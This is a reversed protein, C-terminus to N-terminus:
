HERRKTSAFREVMDLAAKLVPESSRKFSFRSPLRSEDLEAYAANPPDSNLRTWPVGGERAARLLALACHADPQVHDPVTQVRHYPVRMRGVHRVPERQQWYDEDDLAVLGLVHGAKPDSFRSIDHRDAPAEWDVLFKVPTDDAYRALYGAAITLGYSLSAIGIRNPDVDDRALLSDVVAALGDQHVVGGEDEEGASMGRGDPDFTAVLLGSRAFFHMASLGFPPWLLSQGCESGGPILIITAPTREVGKPRVRYVALRAGSAPNTVWTTECSLLPRRLRYYLRSRRRAM